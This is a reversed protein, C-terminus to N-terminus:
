QTKAECQCIEYFQTDAVFNFVSVVFALSYYDRKGVINTCAAGVKVSHASNDPHYDTQDM